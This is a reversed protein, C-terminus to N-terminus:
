GNNEKVSEFKFISLRRLEYWNGTCTQLTLQPPGEYDFISTQDPTMEQSSLFTYTFVLNNETYVHAVDGPALKELAGFVFRNKHGYIFTNGGFDNAMVSPMAYYAEIRGDVLTWSKDEPNYEGKMVRLDIGLRPVVIRVPLGSIIPKEPTQEIVPRVVVANGAQAVAPPRHFFSPLFAYLGVALTSIYIGLVGGYFRAKTLGTTIRGSNM